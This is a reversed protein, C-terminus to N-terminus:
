PGSRGHDHRSAIVALHLVLRCAKGQGATMPHCWGHWAQTTVAETGRDRIGPGPGQRRRRRARRHICALKRSPGLRRKTEKTYRSGPQGASRCPSRPCRALPRRKRGLKTIPQSALYCGDLICCFDCLHSTSRRTHASRLIWQLLSFLVPLPSSPGFRGRGLM